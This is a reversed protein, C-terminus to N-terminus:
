QQQSRVETEYISSTRDNAREHIRKALSLAWAAASAATTTQLKEKPRYTNFRIRTDSHRASVIWVYWIYVFESLEIRIRSSAAVAAAAASACLLMYLVSRFLLFLLCMPLFSVSNFAFSFYFLLFLCQWAAAAACVAHMYQAGSLHEMEKESCLICICLWTPIYVRMYTHMQIRIWGSRPSSLRFIALLMFLLLLVATAVASPFAFPFLIACFHLFLQISDRMYGFPATCVIRIYWDRMCECVSLSPAHARGSMCRVWDGFPARAPLVVYVALSYIPSCALSHVFSRVFLPFAFVFRFQFRWFSDCVAFVRRACLLQVVVSRCVCIANVCLESKEKMWEKRREEEAEEVEAEEHLMYIDIPMRSAVSVMRIPVPLPLLLCVCACMCACFLRVNATQTHIERSFM